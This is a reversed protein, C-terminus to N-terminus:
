LEDQRDPVDGFKMIVVADAFHGLRPDGARMFALADVNLPIRSAVCPACRM